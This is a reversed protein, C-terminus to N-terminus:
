RAWRAHTLGRAHEGIGGLETRLAQARMTWLHLDYEETMSIAGSLQHLDPAVVRASMTAYTAAAAAAEDDGRWAAARASWRTGEVWVHLEALRHQLAQLSGLPRGFQERQKLYDVTMDLAAGLLGAIEAALSVRWWRLLVPGAGPLVRGGSLELEAYPAVYGTPVPRVSGAVPEVVRVDDGDLVLVADADGGFRVPGRQGARALAVRRPPTEGLVLPAVLGRAGVDVAALQRAAAETVLAADLPGADPDTALDLFGAGLLADLLEDDHRDRVERARARGARRELLSHVAALTAQQDPTPAYDV